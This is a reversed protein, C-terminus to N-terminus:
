VEALVRQVFDGYLPDTDLGAPLLAPGSGAVERRLFSIGGPASRYCGADSSISFSFERPEPRGGPFSYGTEIVGVAGDAATLLLVSHDEIVTGQVRNTMVARVAAVPQETLQTFLDIFHV